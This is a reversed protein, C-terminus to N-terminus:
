HGSHGGDGGHGGHGGADFGGHGGFGSSADHASFHGSAHASAHGVASHTETPWTGIAAAQDLPISSVRNVGSPAGARRTTAVRLRWMVLCTLGFALVFDAFTM